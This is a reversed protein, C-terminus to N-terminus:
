KKARRRRRQLSMYKALRVYLPILKSWKTKWKTLPLVYELNRQHGLKEDEISSFFNSTMGFKDLDSREIAINGTWNGDIAEIVPRM